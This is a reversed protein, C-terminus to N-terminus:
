WRRRRRRRKGGFSEWLTVRGIRESVTVRGRSTVGVRMRRGIRIRIGFM